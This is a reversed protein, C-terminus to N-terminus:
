DDYQFLCTGERSDPTWPQFDCKHDDSKDNSDWEQGFEGYKFHLPDDNTAGTWVFVVFPLLSPVKIPQGAPPSAGEVSGLLQDHNAPNRIYLDLKYDDSIQLLPFVKAHQTVHISAWGGKAMDFYNPDETGVTTVTLRPDGPFTPFDPVKGPVDSWEFCVPNGQRKFIVPADLAGVTDALAQQDETVAPSNLSPLSGIINGVVDTKVGDENDSDDKSEAGGSPPLVLGPVLDPILSAAGSGLGTGTGLAGGILGNVAGLSVGFITPGNGGEGPLRPDDGNHKRPDFPDKDNKNLYINIKWFNYRNVRVILPVDENLKLLPLELFWWLNCTPTVAPGEPWNTILWVTGAAEELFVRTCREFFDGYWRASRGNAFVFPESESGEFADLIWKLGRGKAFQKVETADNSGLDAFVVTKGRDVVLFAERIRQYDPYDSEDPGDFRLDPGLALVSVRDDFLSLFTANLFLTLVRLFSSNILVKLFLM